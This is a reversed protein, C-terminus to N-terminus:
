FPLDSDDMAAAVPAPKYPYYRAVTNKPPYPDGTAPDIEAPKTGNATGDDIGVEIECVAGVLEQAKLTLMNMFESRKRYVGHDPEVGLARMAGNARWITGRYGTEDNPPIFLLNDRITRNRFSRTDTSTDPTSVVREAKVRLSIMPNGSGSIKAEAGTCSVVLRTGIPMPKLKEDAKAMNIFFDGDGDLDSDEDTSGEDVRGHDMGSHGTDGHPVSPLKSFDFAEGTELQRESEAIASDAMARERDTEAREETAAPPDDGFIDSTTMTQEQEQDTQGKRPAM